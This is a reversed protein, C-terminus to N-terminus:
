KCYRAIAISKNISKAPVTSSGIPGSWGSSNRPAAIWKGAALVDDIKNVNHYTTAYHSKVVATMYEYGDAKAARAAQIIKTTM